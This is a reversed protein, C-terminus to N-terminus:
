INIKICSTKENKKHKHQKELGVSRKTTARIPTQLCLHYVSCPESASAVSCKQKKVRKPKGEGRRIQTRRSSAEFFYKRILERSQIWCSIFHHIHTSHKGVVTYEHPQTPRFKEKVMISSSRVPFRFHLPIQPMKLQPHLTCSNTNSGLLHTASM